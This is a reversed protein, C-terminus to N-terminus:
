ALSAGDDALFGFKDDAEEGRYFGAVQARQALDVCGISHDPVVVVQELLRDLVVQLHQLPQV